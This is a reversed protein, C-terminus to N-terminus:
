GSHQQHVNPNWTQSDCVYSNLVLTQRYRPTQCGPDYALLMKAKMLSPFIRTWDNNKKKKKIFFLVHLLRLEYRLFIEREYFETINSIGDGQTKLSKGCRKRILSHYLWKVNKEASITWELLAAHEM